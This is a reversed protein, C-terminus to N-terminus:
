VEKDPYIEGITLSAKFSRLHMQLAEEPPSPPSQGPMYLVTWCSAHMSERALCQVSAYPIAAVPAARVYGTCLYQWATCSRHLFRCDM